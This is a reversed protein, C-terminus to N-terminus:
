GTGALKQIEQRHEKPYLRLLRRPPPCAGQEIVETIWNLDNESPGDIEEDSEMERGLGLLYHTVNRLYDDIEGPNYKEKPFVVEIDMVDLQGNGVTDMLSFKDNVQFYRINM